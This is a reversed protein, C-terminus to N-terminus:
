IAPIVMIEFNVYYTTLGDPIFGKGAKLLRSNLPEFSCSAECDTKCDPVTALYLNWNWEM